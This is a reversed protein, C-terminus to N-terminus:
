KNNFPQHAQSNWFLSVFVLVPMKTSANQIAQAFLNDIFCCAYKIELLFKALVLKIIVEITKVCVSKYKKM